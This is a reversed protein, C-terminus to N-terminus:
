SVYEFALYGEPSSCESPVKAGFTLTSNRPYNVTAVAVEPGSRSVQFPLKARPVQMEIVDFM